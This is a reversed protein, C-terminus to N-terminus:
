NTGKFQELHIGFIIGLYKRSDFVDNKTMKSSFLIEFFNSIKMPDVEHDTFIVGNSVHSVAVVHM